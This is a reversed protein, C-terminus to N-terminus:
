VPFGSFCTKSCPVLGRGEGRCKTNGEAAEFGANCSCGTVPQEAWQGDERCYLSPSPGPAPMADAVCSGAVPVVLERPVTEPFYTLNVTQQACKKYFLHLSLLAMCAGQDQFALYFGAKTLPGLRLTKVNVKGTAEAGPRKRTLHEAAVTDVQWPPFLSVAVTMWQGRVGHSQRKGLSARETVKSLGQELVKEGGKGDHAKKCAAVSDM